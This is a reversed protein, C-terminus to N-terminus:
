PLFYMTVWQSWPQYDADSYGLDIWDKGPIGGGVDEITAYGYGPIYVRMGQMENYWSRIVGVVGRQVPKGSATSPYCRDAGSNCPSYSTAYVNIARWYQITQGDVEITHIEYKTGYAVVQTTADRVRKEEEVERSVEIGDEYRVRTKRVILGPVGPTLVEEEDIPVDNSAVYQIDFPLLTEELEVKEVVRIVRIQGDAPLPDSESPHSADLGLLPIGADLLAEGVSEAASRIHLIQGDARIALERAPHYEITLQDTAVTGAPPVLSDAAYPHIGLEALADGVTLAATTIEREGEETVLRMTVARRIQLVCTEDDLPANIDAFEGNCLVRDAPNLPIEAEALIEAPVRSTSQQTYIKEGDIIQIAPIEQAAPRCAALLFLSLALFLRKM